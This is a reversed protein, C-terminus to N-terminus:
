RLKAARMSRRSRSRLEAATPHSAFRTKLYTVSRAVLYFRTATSKGKAPATLKLIDIKQRRTISLSSRKRLSALTLLSANSRKARRMPAPSSSSTKWLTRYDNANLPLPRSSKGTNQRHATAPSLPRRLEHALDASFQSLRTFSDELRNLM